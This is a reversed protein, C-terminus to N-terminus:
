PIYEDAGMDIMGSVPIRSDGDIDDSPGDAALAADIVNISFGTLRYNSGFSPDTAPDINGGGDTVYCQYLYPPYSPSGQTSGDFDSYSITGVDINPTCSKYVNHGNGSDASNGWAITNTMNVTGICISAIGGGGDSWPYTARNNAVTCNTLTMDSGSNLNFVGGKAAENDAIICNM